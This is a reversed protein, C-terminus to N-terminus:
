ESMMRVMGTVKRSGKGRRVGFQDEGLVDEIKKENRRRLIESSDKSSIRHPQNHL